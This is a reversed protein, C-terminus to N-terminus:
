NFKSSYSSYLSAEAFDKNLRKKLISTIPKEKLYESDVLFKKYEEKKSDSPPAPLYKENYYTHDM